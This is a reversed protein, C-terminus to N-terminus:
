QLLQFMEAGFITETLKNVKLKTTDTQNVVFEKHHM